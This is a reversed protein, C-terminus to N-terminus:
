NQFALFAATDIRDEYSTTTIQVVESLRKVVNDDIPIAQISEISIQKSKFSITKFVMVGIIILLTFFIIRRILWKLRKPNM